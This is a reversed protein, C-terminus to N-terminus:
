REVKYVVDAGSASGSTESELSLWDTLRYRM